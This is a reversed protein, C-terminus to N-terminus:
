SGGDQRASVKDQWAAAGASAANKAQAWKMKALEAPPVDMERIWRRTAALLHSGGVALGALAILTGAGVLVAGAILPGTRLEPWSNSNQSSRSM